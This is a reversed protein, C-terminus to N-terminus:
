EAAREGSVRARYASPTEGMRLRFRRSFYPPDAYGLRYGVEAVPLRTFAILRCAETMVATAMTRGHASTASNAQVRSMLLAGSM